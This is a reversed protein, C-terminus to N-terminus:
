STLSVRRTTLFTVNLYKQKLYIQYRGMTTKVKYFVPYPLVSMTQVMHSATDFLESSSSLGLYDNLGLEDLMQILNKRM